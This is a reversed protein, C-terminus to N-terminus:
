VDTRGKKGKKTTIVLVGNGADSGYLAAASAGRLVNMSEIDDPNINSAGDSSQVSGFDNGAASYTTNIIPVGDVVILATSSGQISRNGRLIIQAGSGLGGSGQNIVVNAIKGTLSGLFNDSARVETLQATPVTQTAYVLTKSQRQIGLATVVVESLQKSDTALSITVPGGTPSVSVERVSYGIASIVLTAPGSPAKITFAGEGNSAVSTKTGKITVTAGAVPLKSTEDTIKGSIAREQAFLFAPCVLLFLFLSLRQRIMLM